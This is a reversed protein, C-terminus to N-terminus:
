KSAREVDQQAAQLAAMPEIGGDLVQKVAEYFREATYRNWSIDPAAIWEDHEDLLKLVEKQMPSAIEKQAELNTTSLGGAVRVRQTPLSFYHQLLDYALDPRKTKAQIMYGSSNALAYRKGPLEGPLSPRPLIGFEKEGGAEGLQDLVWSGAFIFVGEGNMYHAMGENDNLTNIDSNFAGLERLEKLRTVAQIFGPDTLPTRAPKEGAQQYKEAGLYCGAMESAWNGAPWAGQNGQFIPQLGAAKLKKCADLFEQWTKPPQIGNAELPKKRYFILNAFDYAMPILFTKGEFQTGAWAQPVTKAKFEPTIFPTLDLATGNSGDRRASTWAWEFYVDPPTQGHLAAMLVGGQSYDDDKYPRFEIKADPHAKEFSAIAAKWTNRNVEEIGTDLLLLKTKSGTEEKGKEKGGCGFAAVLVLIPFALIRFRSRIVLKM